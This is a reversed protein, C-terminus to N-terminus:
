QSLYPLTFWFTSGKGLESEVGIQGGHKKVIESSIYLGLGLGSYQRGAPDVRYYREFLHPIVEPQIGPGKDTVAVKAVAGSRTVSILIEFSGNAYKIANNILNILVQEIKYADVEVDLNKDGSM